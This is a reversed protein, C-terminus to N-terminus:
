SLSRAVWAGMSVAAQILFGGTPADWDLMEGALYVGPFERLMLHSDVEHFSVGGSSSIAESLPRPAGLKLPLHKGLEVWTELSEPPSTETRGTDVLLDFAAESLGSYKKLRKLPGLRSQPARSCAELIETTKRGPWLDLAALGSRGVFYLPTGEFGWETVMLDGRKEGMETRLSVNKIPKRHHLEFFSQPVGLVSFGVNSPSFDQVRIGKERFAPIWPLSSDEGLWSGGGLGLIVADCPGVWRMQGECRFLLELNETRRFDLFEHHLHFRVGRDQLRQSWVQLFRSAKKERLLVRSSTGVFTEFGLEEIWQRWDEPSFHGLIQRFYELHQPEHTRYHSLFEESRAEFTVNLGSSGAILIKRGVSLRSEFLDIQFNKSGSLKWAAMMGAPGSGVIAIRKPKLDTNV